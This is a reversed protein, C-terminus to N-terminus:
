KSELEQIFGFSLAGYRIDDDTKGPIFKEVSGDISVIEMGNPIHPYWESPYLWHIHHDDGDWMQLGLKKLNQKTLLKLFQFEEVTKPFYNVVAGNTRHFQPTIFTVGENPAIGMAARLQEAFNPANMDLLPTGKPLKM